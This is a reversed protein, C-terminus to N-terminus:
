VKVTIKEILVRPIVIWDRPKGEYFEQVLLITKDTEKFLWGITEMKSLRDDINIRDDFDEDSSVKLIDIWNVVVVNM